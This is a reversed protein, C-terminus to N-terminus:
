RTLAWTSDLGVMEIRTDPHLPQVLKREAGVVTELAQDFPLRAAEVETVPSM